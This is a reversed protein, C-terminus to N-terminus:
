PACQGVADDWRDIRPLAAPPGSAEPHYPAYGCGGFTVGNSQRGAWPNEQPIIRVGGAVLEEGRPQYFACEFPAALRTKMFLDPISDGDPPYPFQTAVRVDGQCCYFFSWYFNGPPAVEFLRDEGPPLYAYRDPAVKVMPGRGASSCAAALEAEADASWDSLDRSRAILEGAESGGPTDCRLVPRLCMIEESDSLMFNETAPPWALGNPTCLPVGNQPYQDSRYRYCYYQVGAAGWAQDVLLENFRDFNTETSAGAGLGYGLPALVIGAIKGWPGALGTKFALDAFQTIAGIAISAGSLGSRLESLGDSYEELDIADWLALDRCTPAADRVREWRAQREAESVSTGDENELWCCGGSRGARQEGPDTSARLAECEARPRPPETCYVTATCLMRTDAERAVWEVCANADSLCDCAGCDTNTDGNFCTAAATATGLLRGCFNFFNTLDQQDLCNAWEEGSLMDDDCAPARIEGVADEAAGGRLEEQYATLEELMDAVGAQMRPVSHVVGDTDVVVLIGVPEASAGAPVEPEQFDTRLLAAAVAVQVVVGSRDRAIVTAFNGTHEACHVDVSGYSLTGQEVRRPVFLMRRLNVPECGVELLRGLVLPTDPHEQILRLLEEGKLETPPPTPNGCAALTCLAIGVFPLVKM